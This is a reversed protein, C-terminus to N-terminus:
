VEKHTENISKRRHQVENRENEILNANNVYKERSNLSENQCRYRLAVDTVSLEYVNRM